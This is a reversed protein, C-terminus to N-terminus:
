GRVRGAVIAMVPIANASIMGAMPNKMPMASIAASSRWPPSTVPSDTAIYKTQNAVAAM